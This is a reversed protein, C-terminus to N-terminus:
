ILSAIKARDLHSQRELHDMTDQLSTYAEELEKKGQVTIECSSIHFDLIRLRDGNLYHRRGGFFLEVGDAPRSTRRLEMNLLIHRIRLVIFDDSYPKIIFNSAGIELGRMIDETGPLQILDFTNTM